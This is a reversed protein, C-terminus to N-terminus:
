RRELDASLLDGESTVMLRKLGFRRILEGESPTVRPRILDPFMVFVAGEERIRRNVDADGHSDLRDPMGYALRGTFLYIAAKSNSILPVGDLNRIQAV